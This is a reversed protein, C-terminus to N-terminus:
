CRIENIIHQNIDGGTNPFQERDLIVGSGVVLIYENNFIGSIFQQKIYTEDVADIRYEKQKIENPKRGM